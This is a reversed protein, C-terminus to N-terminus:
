KRVHRHSQCAGKHDKKALVQRENNYGDCDASGNVQDHPEARDPQCVMATVAERQSRTSSSYLAGLDVRSVGSCKLMEIGAHPLHVTMCELKQM